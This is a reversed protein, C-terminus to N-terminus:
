SNTHSSITHWGSTVTSWVFSAVSNQTLSINGLSFVTGGFNTGNAISFTMTGVNVVTALQGNTQGNALSVAAGDTSSVNLLTKSSTTITINGTLSQTTGPNYVAREIVAQGDKTIKFANARAGSNAGNGAVFLDDTTVWSTTTGQLVNFRGLVMSAFAQATSESGFSAARQGTVVTLRGTALSESASGSITNGIGLAVNGGNAGSASITHTTGAAFNNGDGNLTSGAGFAASFSDQVHHNEGFASSCTASTDVFNNRGTVFGDQGICSNVQSATTSNFLASGQGINRTAHVKGFIFAGSGVTGSTTSSDAHIRAKPTTQSIGLHSGDWSFDTQDALNGGANYFAVTNPDGTPASANGNAAAIIRGQADVTLNTATYVGAVVATNALSITGTTTIPGGTLGTGTNVQTVTGSGGGVSIWSPNAASGGTSLVQGSIGPPLAVWSTANRYIIDGQTSAITSDIIASITNGVPFATIGSINSLIRNNPISPLAASSSETVIPDVTGDFLELKNTSSNYRVEGLVSPTITNQPVFQLGNLQRNYNLAM